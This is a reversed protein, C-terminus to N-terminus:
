WSTIHYLFIFQKSLIMCLLCPYQSSFEDLVTTTLDKFIQVFDDPEFDRESTKKSVISLFEKSKEFTLNDFKRGFNWIKNLLSNSFSPSISIFSRSETSKLIFLNIDVSIIVFNVCLNNGINESCHM